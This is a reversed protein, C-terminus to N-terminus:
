GVARHRLTPVLGAKALLRIDRLEALSLVVAGEDVPDCLVSMMCDDCASTNAMVCTDCSIVLVPERAHDQDHIPDLDHNGLHDRDDRDPGLHNQEGFHM